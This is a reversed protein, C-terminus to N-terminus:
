PTRGVGPTRSPNAAKNKMVDLSRRLAEDRLRLSEEAAIVKRLVDILSEPDLPKTFFHLIRADNLAQIALELDPYATMMIRPTRPALQQAQALMQLGDMGPMKYDSLIAHFPGARLAELAEKGSAAEIVEASLAPGLLAKLGNRIDLEDDVVLLRARPTAAAM